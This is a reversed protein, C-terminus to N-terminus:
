ELNNIAVNDLAFAEFMKVASVVSLMVANLIVVILMIAMLIVVILVYVSQLILILMDFMLILGNLIIISLM